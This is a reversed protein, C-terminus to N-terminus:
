WQDKESAIGLTENCSQSHPFLGRCNLLRLLYFHLMFFLGEFVTFTVKAVQSQLGEM